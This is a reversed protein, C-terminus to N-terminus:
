TWLSAEATGGDESGEGACCELTCWGNQGMCEQSSGGAEVQDRGPICGEKKTGKPWEGAGRGQSELLIPAGQVSGRCGMCGVKHVVM